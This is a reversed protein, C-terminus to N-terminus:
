SGSSVIINGRLVNEMMGGQCNCGSGGDTGCDQYVDMSTNVASPEGNDMVTFTRDTGADPGNKVHFSVTAMNGSVQLCFVPGSDSGGAVTFEQVVYGIAVGSRPNFQAAFAVHETATTFGGVAFQRSSSSTQASAHQTFAVGILAIALALLPAAAFAALKSPFLTTARDSENELTKM